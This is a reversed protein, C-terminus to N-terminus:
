ESAVCQIRHLPRTVQNFMIGRGRKEREVRLEKDTAIKPGTPSPGPLPRRPSIVRILHFKAGNVRPLRPAYTLTHSQAHTQPPPPPPSPHHRPPHTCSSMLEDFRATDLRHLGGGAGRGWHTHTHATIHTDPPIPSPPSPARPPLLKRCRLWGLMGGGRTQKTWPTAWNSLIVSLFAASGMKKFRLPHPPAPPPPTMASALPMSNLNVPVDRFLRCLSSSYLGLQSRFDGTFM